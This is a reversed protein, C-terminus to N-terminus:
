EERVVSARWKMDSKGEKLRRRGGELNEWTLVEEEVKLTVKTEENGLQFIYEWRLDSIWLVKKLKM